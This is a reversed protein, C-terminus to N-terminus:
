SFNRASGSIGAIALFGSDLSRGHVSFGDRRVVGSVRQDLLSSFRRAMSWSAQPRMAKLFAWAARSAALGPYTRLPPDIEV